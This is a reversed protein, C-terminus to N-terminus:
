PKKRSKPFPHKGFINGSPFYRACIYHKGGAAKATAMGVRTTEFWVMQTYHGVGKFGKEGVTPEGRARYIVKEEEGWGLLAVDISESRTHGKAYAINEGEDNGKSHELFQERAMTDAWAQAHRALEPDWKLDPVGVERRLRNHEDLVRKIEAESYGFEGKGSPNVTSSDTAKALKRALTQSEESLDTLRYVYNQSNLFLTVFKADAQVFKGQITQGTRNTWEHFDAQGLAFPITLGPSCLLLGLFLKRM